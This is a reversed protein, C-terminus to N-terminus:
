GNVLLSYTKKNRNQVDTQLHHNLPLFFVSVTSPHFISQKKALSEAFCLSRFMSINSKLITKLLTPSSLIYIHTSLLPTGPRHLCNKESIQGFFDKLFWLSQGGCYFMDFDSAELCSRVYTKAVSGEM